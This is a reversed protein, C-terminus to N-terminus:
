IAKTDVDKCSEMLAILNGNSLLAMVMDCELRLIEGICRLVQKRMQLLGVKCEMGMEKMERFFEKIIIDMPCALDVTDM